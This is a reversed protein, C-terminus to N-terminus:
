AGRASWSSAVRLKWSKILGLNRADVPEIEEFRAQEGDPLMQFYTNSAVVEGAAACATLRAAMNIADGIVGINQTCFPRLSVAEVDGMAMGIHVGGRAQVRDIERQWKNAVSSGIQVLARACDLARRANSDDAAPVGFLAVVEDGVFQCMMGGANMIAYRSNSYFTTLATRVVEDDRTDRVYSSFASLDALLVVAGQYRGPPLIQDPRLGHEQHLQRLRWFGFHWLLPTKLPSDRWEDGFAFRWKADDIAFRLERLGDVTIAPMQIGFCEHILDLLRREDWVELALAPTIAARLQAEMAPWEPLRASDVVLVLKRAGPLGPATAAYKRTLHQIMRDAPYGYKVEVIYPSLGAAEVVIDAFSGPLGLDVERSVQVADPPVKELEVHRFRCIECCIEELFLRLQRLFQPQLAPRSAIAHM